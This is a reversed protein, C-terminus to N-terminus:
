EWLSGNLGFKVGVDLTLAQSPNGGFRIFYVRFFHEELGLGIEGIYTMFFKNEYQQHYETREYMNIHNWQVGLGLHFFMFGKTPIRLSTIIPITFSGMGEYGALDLSFPFYRISTELGFMIESKKGLLIGGGIGPLINLLQGKNKPAANPYRPPEQIWHYFNYDLLLVPRVVFLPKNIATKKDQSMCLVLGSFLLIITLFINKM